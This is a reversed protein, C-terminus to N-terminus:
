PKRNAYKPRTAYSFVEQFRYVPSLANKAVQRSLVPSDGRFHKLRMSTDTMVTPSSHKPTMAACSKRGSSLSELCKRVGLSLIRQRDISLHGM